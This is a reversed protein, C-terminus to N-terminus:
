ILLNVLVIILAAIILRRSPRQSPVNRIVVQGAGIV